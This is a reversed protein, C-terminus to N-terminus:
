YNEWAEQYLQILNPRNLSNVPIDFTKGKEEIVEDTDNGFEFLSPAVEENLFKLDLGDFGLKDISIPERSALTFGWNGFSPVDLHYNATELGTAQVTKNITWYVKTAFVPSTSQISVKGGPSLHNRVLSYFEKTYLKNLGEDNPDPLDGLIVDYLEKSDRLYQFADEHIVQVRSDKLSGENLRLLEHNTNALDTMAPDLDVLTIQEVDEHKLVERVALGDGGGLILVSRTQDALAMPIHVLAEHYRFEDSEAFQLQGNLFLRVDGPEKTLIIKQYKTEETYVIPDAYSKQEFVSAYKEGFLFGAVLLLLILFGAAQHVKPRSMEKRFRLTIFLAVIANIMAIFFATNILGLLPRLVLAFGVSGILSGAYDFFLVRATSKSIDERIEQVRRILIPLELGTLFGTLSIVTYLYIQAVGDDFYATFFFLGFVSFGGVLAILYEAQVFRTVLWNKLKESLAAGIGMAMMFLGITICYYLVSDGFLYSGAAGYLVQFVIGCISVIGSSLYLYKQANM